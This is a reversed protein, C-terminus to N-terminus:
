LAELVNGADSFTEITLLSRVTVGYRNAYFELALEDLVTLRSDILCLRGLWSM